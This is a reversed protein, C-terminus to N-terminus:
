NPFAQVELREMKPSTSRLAHKALPGIAILAAFLLFIELTYVFLYGSLPGVVGPGLVGKDGLLVIIDRLAGGFAIALGACSAQVAGWVGLAIGSDSKQAHAMGAILTCVSFVGGGVGVIAVGVVFLPTWSFLSSLVILTFGLVGTLAGHGAVRHPESHRSLLRTPLLFGIISGIAFVATLMTTGSVSMNLIQGGYPELLVDQMSFGAAGIGTAAMLRTIGPQQLHQKATDWFNTPPDDEQKVASHRGEQKWLAVINLVITVVAAGQIVQILRLQSFNSLLLGLALASIAMGVLLMVYLLAVVRPRVKEPAIDTALALGATQVTHIGAGVLLFSLAAAAYGFWVGQGTGMGSLVLLAFPMIALGGFQFISGYWIYPGRRWGFVSVHNDSRHGILARFPAFVLPLAVMVSVIWAPMGLEVIMVRNLTGTLLVAAMGVSVQFLSLRFLRSLPLSDTAVDAFPLYRM